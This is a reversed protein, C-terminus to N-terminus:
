QSDLNKYRLRNPMDKSDIASIVKGVLKTTVGDDEEEEM